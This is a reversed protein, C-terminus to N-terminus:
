EVKCWILPNLPEGNKRVEFYLGSNSQGGSSGVLAISEGRDVWEGVQRFLLQNHSYLSMFGDGHDLILLLGFGRLWDAFAVRGPFISRVETGEAADMYVGQWPIDTGWRTQGFRASIKGNLPLELKGRMQGFRLGPDSEGHAAPATDNIGDLLRQLRLADQNMGALQQRKSGVAKELAAVLASRERRAGSMDGRRSLQDAELATLEQRESEREARARHLREATDEFKLIDAVRQRSLYRYYVLFRGVHAPDEQNLLLKLYEARGSIYSAFVINKLQSRHVDLEGEIRKIESESRRIDETRRRIDGQIDRIHRSIDGMAKEVRALDKQVSSLEAEDHNLTATIRSIQNRLRDLEQQTAESACLVPTQVVALLAFLYLGAGIQASIPGAGSRKLIASATFQLGHGCSFERM